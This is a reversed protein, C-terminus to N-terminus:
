STPNVISEVKSKGEHIKGEVAGVDERAASDGQSHVFEEVQEGGDGGEEGEEEVGEFEAFDERDEGEGREGAQEKEDGDDIFQQLQVKHRLFKCAKGGEEM